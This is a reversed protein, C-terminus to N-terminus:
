RTHFYHKVGSLYAALVISVNMEDTSALELTEITHPWVVINTDGVAAPQAKLLLVQVPVPNM